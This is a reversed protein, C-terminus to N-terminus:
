HAIVTSNPVKQFFISFTLQNEACIDVDTNAFYSILLILMTFNNVEIVKVVTEHDTINYQIKNCPDDM